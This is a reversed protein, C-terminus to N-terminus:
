VMNKTRCNIVLILNIWQRIRKLIRLLVQLTFVSCRITIYHLLTVTDTILLLASGSAHPPHLESPIGSTPLATRSVETEASDRYNVSM